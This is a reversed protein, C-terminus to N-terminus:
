RLGPCKRQRNEKALYVGSFILCSGILQIGSITEGAFFAGMTLAVVPPIYYVSAATVPGLKEIIYYFFIYSIGTGFFGLVVAVGLFIQPHAFIADLGQWPLIVTSIILSFVMQYAAIQVPNLKLPVLWRKTYIVASGFSLATALMYAAGLAGDGVNNSFASHLNAVLGVGGFGVLLGAIKRRSLKESHLFVSAILATVLPVTGAMVGAIGSSLLQSGKMLLFFPLVNGLLALAIFHYFWKFDRWKFLGKALALGFIPVAGFAIRLWTVQLPQLLVQAKKMFLFNTGWMIGTALFALYSGNM